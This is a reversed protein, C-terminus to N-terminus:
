VDTTDYGLERMRFDSDRWNPEVKVWLTLFVKYDCMKEIDIRANTAIKKLMEGKKGIVISKHSQKECVIDACIDYCKGGERMEFKTVNVGIGYPIEKDLLYMAKERIIEAAMFSMPRDTYVDEPYYQVGEKLLKMINDKLIDLGDGRKASIPVVSFLGAVKNLKDLVKFLTEPMVADIKNVAIITKVGSAVSKTVFDIESDSLEKDAAVVYILGDIDNLAANVSKMMYEGLHNKAEHIGPTDMFIAQYDDGNLVGIIKNRTTQPRWSVIAVKEGVLANILTSKGANPRGALTIFGSKM